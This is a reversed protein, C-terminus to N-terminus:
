GCREMVAAIVDRNDVDDEVILAHVGNLSPMAFARDGHERDVFPQAAAAAHLPLRVTFVAGKGEGESAATISGGQLEILHRAIALGLGLGGQKEAMGGQRFRE